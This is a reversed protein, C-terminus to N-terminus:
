KTLLGADVPLAIGTIYRAEDSALWLLADSVDRPEVMAVPLLNSSGFVPMADELTPDDLDPRFRRYTHQNIVMDTRVTSPLIANVRIFHGALEVALSRMLGIVGHKAATYHACNAFGKMGAGSSIITISGGRGARILPPITAKVTHWVGTLNIDIVDRWQEETLEWTPGYSIIGANACVIDIYNFEKLAAAVVKDLRAQDRVDAQYATIRRGQSEVLRVTEELDAPSAGAYRVTEIQQGIDLAVIDAGEEALRVAHSRGQGRAAGTILAVKGDLRGM